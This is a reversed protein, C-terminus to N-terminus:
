DVWCPSICAARVLLLLAIGLARAKWPSMNKREPTPKLLLAALLLPLLFLITAVGTAALGVLAGCALCRLLSPARDTKVIKWVVFWYIFVAWATPMLIAAYAQAPVFFAWGLAALIGIAKARAAATEDGDRFVRRAIKYLLTATCADLCAQLFGPVFPSFGFLKYLFALLYAYLPLGYFAFGDTLRGHLIQRAWEDYFHMDGSGPLLLPSSSLRALAIMRVLFVFAFIYHVLGPSGRLAKGLTLPRSFIHSKPM